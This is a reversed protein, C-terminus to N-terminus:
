QSNHTQTATYHYMHNYVNSVADMVSNLSYQIRWLQDHVYSSNYPMGTYPNVGPQWQRNQTTYNYPYAATEVSGPNNSDNTQPHTLENHPHTVSARSDPLECSWTTVDSASSFVEPVDDPIPFDPLPTLFDPTAYEEPSEPTDNTQLTTSQALGTHQETQPESIPSSRLQEIKAKIRRMLTPKWPTRQQILFECHEAQWQAWKHPDQPPEIRYRTIPIKKIIRKLIGIYLPILRLMDKQPVMTPLEYPYGEFQGRLTHACHVKAMNTISRGEDTQMRKYMKASFQATVHTFIPYIHLTLSILIDHPQDTTPQTELENLLMTIRAMINALTDHFLKMSTTRVDTTLMHLIDSLAFIIDSSFDYVTLDPRAEEVAKKAEQALVSVRTLMNLFLEIHPRIKSDYVSDEVTTPRLRQQKPPSGQGDEVDVIEPILQNRKTGKTNFRNPTSSGTRVVIPRVKKQPQLDQPEV